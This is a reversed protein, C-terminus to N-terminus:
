YQDRRVDAQELFIAQGLSIGEGFRGIYIMSIGSGEAAAQHFVVEVGEMAERLADKDRVDGLIYECKANAYAPLKAPQPHAAADLNDFAVVKHGREELADVLHSGILGGGGTVVVRTMENM